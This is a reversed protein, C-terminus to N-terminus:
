SEVAAFDEAVKSAIAANATYGEALQQELRKERLERIYREVALRIFGSRNTSLAAAENEADEYLGRPFDVAVKVSKSAVAPLKSRRSPKPRTRTYAM